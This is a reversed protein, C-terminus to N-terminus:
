VGVKLTQIDEPHIVLHVERLTTNPNNDIYRGVARTTNRAALDKPFGLFGSTLGPIAISSFGRDDLEKLCKAIFQM